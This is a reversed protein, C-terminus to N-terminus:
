WHSHQVGRGHSAISILNRSTIIVLSMANAVPPHPSLRRWGLGSGTAAVVSNEHLILLNDDLKSSIAIPTVQYPSTGSPEMLRSARWSGGSGKEVRMLVISEAAQILVFCRLADVPDISIAIVPLGSIGDMEIRSWRLGATSSHWIRGRDDGAYVSKEDSPAVAVCKLKGDSIELCTDWSHNRDFGYRDVSRADVGIAFVLVPSKRSIAIPSTANPATDPGDDLSYWNGANDLKFHMLGSFHSSAWFETSKGPVFRISGGEGWGLSSWTNRGDFVQADDDQVTVAYKLAPGDSVALDYCQTAVLGNSNLIWSEGGDESLFVGGDTALHLKTPHAPDFILHQQDEHTETGYGAVKKWTQGADSSRHLNTGGAFLHNPNRPDIAILSCWPMMSSARDEMDGVSRFRYGGDDSYFVLDGMKVAVVRSESTNVLSVRPANATDGTPLGNSEADLAHWTDADDESLYVGTRHVGVLMRSPENPDLAISCVTERCHPSADAPDITTWSLGGDRTSHLGRNGGVYVRDPDDPHVAVSTCLFSEIPGCLEWHAGGDSSRYVGAGMGSPTEARDRNGTWEGTAAYLIDPNTPAVALGGIALSLEDHMTPFWDRGGNITKWVGGGASGAYLIDANTPHGALCKVRGPVTEPGLSEWRGMPMPWEEPLRLDPIPKITRAPKALADLLDLEPLKDVIEDLPAGGLGSKAMDAPFDARRYGFTELLDPDTALHDPLPQDLLADVMPQLIPMDALTAAEAWPSLSSLLRLASLLRPDRPLGIATFTGPRTVQAYVYEGSESYGSAPILRFRGLYADWRAAVITGPYLRKLRGKPLAFRLRAFGFPEPASVRVYRGTLGWSPIAKKPRRGRSISVEESADLPAIEMGAEPLPGGLDYTRRPLPDEKRRAKRLSLLQDTLADLDDVGLLARYREARRDLDESNDVPGTAWGSRDTKPM